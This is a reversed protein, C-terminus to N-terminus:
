TAPIPEKARDPATITVFRVGAFVFAEADTTSAGESTALIVRVAGASTLKEITLDIGGVRPLMLPLQVGSEFRGIVFAAASGGVIAGVIAGVDEAALGLREAMESGFAVEPPVLEARALRSM